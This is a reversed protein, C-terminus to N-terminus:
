TCEVLEHASGCTQWSWHPQAVAPLWRCGKTVDPSPRAPANKLQQVVMVCCTAPSTLSPLMNVRAARALHPQVKSSSVQPAALSADAGMHQLREPCTRGDEDEVLEM